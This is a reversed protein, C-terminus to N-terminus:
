KAAKMDTELSELSVHMVKKSQAAVIMFDSLPMNALEAARGLSVEHKAYKELANDVMRAKVADVLLERIVKSKDTHNEKALYEVDKLLQDPIRAGVTVTM